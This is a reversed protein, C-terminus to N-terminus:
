AVALRSPVPVRKSGPLRRFDAPAIDVARRQIAKSRVKVLAWAVPASDEQQASVDYYGGFAFVSVFLAALIALLGVIALTRM